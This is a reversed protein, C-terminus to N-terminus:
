WLCIVYYPTWCTLFVGVLTLTIRITNLKAKGIMGPTSQRLAAAAVAADDMSGANCGGNNNNNSNNITLTSRNFRKGLVFTSPPNSSETSSQQQRRLLSSNRTEGGGSGKIMNVGKRHLHFIIGGYTVIIVCLPFIYLFIMGLLFYLFEGQRSSFSGYTVCQGYWPFKPHYRLHFVVCQPLSLLIATMWAVCVM